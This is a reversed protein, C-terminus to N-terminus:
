GRKGFVIGEKHKLSIDHKDLKCLESVRVGSSNLFDVMALERMDKCNDQMLIVEEDPFPHHIISESKIKHIKRVPSKFVIDEKELYNYFSSFTLRTDDM